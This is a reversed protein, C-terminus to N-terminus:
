IYLRAISDEARWKRWSPTSSSDAHDGENVIYLASGSWWRNKWPSSHTLKANLLHLTCGGGDDMERDLFSLTCGGMTWEKVLYLSSRHSGGNKVKVKEISSHVVSGRASSWQSLSSRLRGKTWERISFTFLPAGTTSEEFISVFVSAKLSPVVWRKNEFLFVCLFM